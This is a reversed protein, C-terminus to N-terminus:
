AATVPSGCPSFCGYIHDEEVMAKEISDLPFSAQTFILEVSGSNYAEIPELSDGVRVLLLKLSAAEERLFRTAEEVRIDVLQLLEM